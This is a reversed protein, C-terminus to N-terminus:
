VKQCILLDISAKDFVRQLIAEVVQWDGGGLGCGIGFPIALTKCLSSGEALFNSVRRLSGELALYDTNRVPGGYGYQGYCNFIARGDESTSYSFLGLMEIAIHRHEKIFRKDAEFAEPYRQKIAKALGAGMVNRCNCQHAIAVTKPDTDFIDQQLTTIM